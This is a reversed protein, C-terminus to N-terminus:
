GINYFNNAILESRSIVTSDAWKILNLSMQGNRIAMLTEDLWTFQKLLNEPIGSMEGTINRIAAISVLKVVLAYRGTTKDLESVINYRAGLSSMIESYAIDVANELTNANTQYQKILIQSPCFMLLDDGTLYGYDLAKIDDYTPLAM